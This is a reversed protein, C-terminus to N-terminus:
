GREGSRREADAFVLAEEDAGVARGKEVKSVGRPFKEMAEVTLIGLAIEGDAGFLPEGDDLCDDQGFEVTKDFRVGVTVERNRVLIRALRYVGIELMDIPDDILGGFM